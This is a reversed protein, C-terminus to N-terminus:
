WLEHRNAALECLSQVLTGRAGIEDLSAKQATRQPNPRSV